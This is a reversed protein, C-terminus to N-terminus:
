QMSTQANPFDFDAIIPLHDSMKRGFVAGSNGVDCGKLRSALDGTVFLHDMQHRLTKKDTNVFTPVLHRHHHRLCETLGIGSMRDLYEKNGRPGDKWEDFTESCNFDGAVIWPGERSPLAERLSAWLLDAAWIDKNLRLKVDVVDDNAIRSKAVPWAPSYVSVLRITTSDGAILDCSIFNGLFWDLERQVWPVRSEMKYTAKITAKSLIATMFKQKTGDQRIAAQAHVKYVTELSDPIAAVEQLLAFDPDLELLYDWSERSATAKNCNWTIVRM